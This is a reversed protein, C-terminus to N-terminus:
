HSEATTDHQVNMAALLAGFIGTEAPVSFPLPDATNFLLTAGAAIGPAQVPTDITITNTGTNIRTVLTNGLIGTQAPMTQGLYVGTLSSMAIQTAGASVPSGGVTQSNTTGWKNSLYALVGRWEQTSLIRPVVIAEYIVGNLGFGNVAPNFGL